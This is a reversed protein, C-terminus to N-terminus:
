AIRADCQGSALLRASQDSPVGPFIDAGGGKADEGPSIKQEEKDASFTFYSSQGCSSRVVLSFFCKSELRAYVSKKHVHWCSVAHWTTRRKKGVMLGKPAYFSTLSSVFIEM